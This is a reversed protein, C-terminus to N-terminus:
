LKESPIPVRTSFRGRRASTHAKARDTEYRDM